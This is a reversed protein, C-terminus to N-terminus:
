KQERGEDEQIKLDWPFFYIFIPIFSRYVRSKSSDWWHRNSKDEREGRTEPAPRISEISLRNGFKDPFAAHSRGSKNKQGWKGIGDSLLHSLVCQKEKKKSQPM